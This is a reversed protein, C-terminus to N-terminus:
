RGRPWQGGKECASYTITDPKVGKSRMKDFVELAGAAGRGGKECASYTITNPKVGKSRM